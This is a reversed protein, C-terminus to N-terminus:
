KSGGVTVKVHRRADDSSGGILLDYDGPDVVYAKRATDWHRLQQAPIQLTVPKSEGKPVHVRTFGCLTLQAKSDAPKAHRAYVQAVEDGDRPGSNTVDFTVKVTGDPAVNDSAIRADGYDFKTYSLGHGFAYLPKGTFYRYTRNKMSYDDFPSLDQTSGYFTVPLRGAPNYNGFLVDAVATGGEEGPYWAQVIAPVHEHEWPLAMASGSCNVLVMPRGTARIRQILDEQIRPLEIRTRDGRSFGEYVDTRANGEEKELGADIGSVFIVLDADRAADVAKQAKEPPDVDSKDRRDARRSGQEYVVKVDSGAAAKIGELITVTKSPKASYNGNQMDAADANPGIVAITKYKGKALPLLGDNKLLVMSERAVKLALRRHEPTDNQDMGIKNFPVANQPDFLGCRMRLTLERAVAQDVEAQSILGKQVAEPLYQYARGGKIGVNASGMKLQDPNFPQTGGSSVDCGAKVAAAAAEVPGPVFKHEDWIDGIAGGDSFVLGGFGWQKRLLDTLLRPNACCPKGNLASYAGMVTGAKGEKILAEFAPLYTDYLDEQSPEMNMHHREKEPGSHVAFHKACAMGKVYNPDDGQLGQVFAVGIRATLFPDEGYTEQGRGWRPDRFININPSYFNVGTFHGSNGNNRAVFDNHRARGETAITDAETRILAPDWTAAMGIAQPFVTSNGPGQAGHLCENRHNYSGIGLHPIAPADAMLQSAREEFTMRSMLDKVRVDIPKAPDKWVEPADAAHGVLPFVALALVAVRLHQRPNM